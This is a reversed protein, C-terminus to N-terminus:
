PCNNYSGDLNAREYIAIQLLSLYFMAQVFFRSSVNYINELLENFRPHNKFPQFVEQRHMIAYVVQGFHLSYNIFCSFPESPIQM